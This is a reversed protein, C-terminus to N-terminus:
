LLMPIYVSLMFYSNNNIIKTSILRVQFLKIKHELSFIVDDESFDGTVLIHICKGWIKKYKRLLGQHKKKLMQYWRNGFKVQETLSHTDHYYIPLM